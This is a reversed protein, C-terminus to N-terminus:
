RTAEGTVTAPDINNKKLNILGFFAAPVLHWPLILMYVHLDAARRMVYGLLGYVRLPGFKVAAWYPGAPIAYAPIAPKYVPLSKKTLAASVIHAAFEGDGVATQATGAFPTAACDGLMMIDSHGKARLQEDVVARGRRDLELGPITGLLPHAKVGATWVLTGAEMRDGNKLTIAGAEASAVATKLHVTVGIEQLHALLRASASEEAMPLLRDMAEILDVTVLSEPLSREALLKKALPIIEGAIEIGTPGGGVIVFRGLLRQRAEDAGVMATVQEEVRRRIGLAQAINKMTISHEEMGPISFYAPVSGPALMLTDYAYSGKEGTVTKGEPDIRQVTDTVIRVKNNLMLGLPICAESLRGGGIMRYLVGYYELWPRDSILTITADSLGAKALHLAATVGGFGGGVIVIHHAM